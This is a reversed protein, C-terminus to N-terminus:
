AEEGTSTDPVAVPDEVVGETGDTVVVRLFSVKIAIVENSPLSAVVGIM